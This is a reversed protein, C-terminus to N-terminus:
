GNKDGSLPATTPVGTDIIDLPLEAETAPVPASETRPRLTPLVALLGAVLLLLVLPVTV